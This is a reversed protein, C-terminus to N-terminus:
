YTIPPCCKGFCVHSLFSTSDPVLEPVWQFTLPCIAFKIPVLFFHFTGELTGWGQFSFILAGQTHASDKWQGCLFNIKSITQWWKWGLWALPLNTLEPTSITAEIWQHFPHVWLIKERSPAMQYAWWWYTQFMPLEENVYFGLGVERGLIFVHRRMRGEASQGSVCGEARSLRYIYLHFNLSPLVINSSFHSALHRLFSITLKPFMNPFHHSCMLFFSFNFFGVRGWEWVWFVCFSARWIAHQAKGNAQM